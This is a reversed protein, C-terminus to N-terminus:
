KAMQKAVEEAFNEERKELGEGVLYRVFKTVETNNEKLYQGCKKSPDLFYIQDVLSMDQLAKSVKGEIAGMIVKEPKGAFKEDNKVIETQIAREHDVVDAPMDARSVYSPNMSAVQMAMHKAVEADSSNKLILAVSIAGNNHMYIGFTDEDNKELIEFRRLTIKEGITAVAEIFLDNLTKGDVVLALAEENNAPSNELIVNVTTDLLKLFSENKAVFDTESNLLASAINSVLNKFEENRAVFDTECNVELIIAKNGDSFAYSLGEAAIRSEKKAAKAIGKERLWDIAKTIDGDCETLAKKCDMMGAGTRERLEKVQSATIAM